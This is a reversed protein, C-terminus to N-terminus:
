HLTEIIYAIIFVVAAQARGAHINLPYLYVPRSTHASLSSGSCVSSLCYATVVVRGGRQKRWELLRRSSPPPTPPHREGDEKREEVEQRGAKTIQWWHRAWDQWKNRWLPLCCPQRDGLRDTQGQHFLNRQWAERNKMWNSLFLSCCSHILCACSKKARSCQFSTIKKGQREGNLMGLPWM